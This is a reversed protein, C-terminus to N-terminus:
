EVMVAGVGDRNVVVERVVEVEVPMELLMVEIKEQQRVEVPIEM